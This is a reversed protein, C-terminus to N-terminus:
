EWVQVTLTVPKERYITIRSVRLLNEQQGSPINGISDVIGGGINMPESFNFYYHYRTQFLSRTKPYDNQALTYFRELKTQNIKNQSLIGPSAVNGATWDEPVGESLLIDAIFEGDYRMSDLIEQSEPTVNVAYFYLAVVGGIFLVLGIMLDFGWAQGKKGGM